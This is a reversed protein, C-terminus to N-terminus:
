ILDELMVPKFNVSKLVKGKHGFGAVDETLRCVWYDGVKVTEVPRNHALHYHHTKIAGQENNDFKTLNSYCVREYAEGVVEDEFGSACICGNISESIAEYELWKPYLNAELDQLSEMVFMMDAVGDLMEVADGKTWAKWFECTEEAFQIMQRRMAESQPLDRLGSLTNWERILNEM